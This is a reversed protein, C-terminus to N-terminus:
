AALWRGAFGDTGVGVRGPMAARAVVVMRDRYDLEVSTPDIAAMAAPLATRLTRSGSRTGDGGIFHDIVVADAAEAIRAFFAPPDAIPLLPSVTVVVFVGAARLTAAAQLREAVSSAPPPLGPLRDRDSEISVHVRLACRAALRRCLDLAGLVRHSHTQLILSDPPRVTMTELVRRTVGYRDEQPVFPDTASSMFIAFSGRTRRGWAREREYEAAYAEAANVRAQLFTGWPAGGTVWVNHQVYCGVGCLSRGFSCGRYPQLSHSSVTRLYGQARTLIRGVETEGTIV